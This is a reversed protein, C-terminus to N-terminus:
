SGADERVKRRAIERIAPHLDLSEAVLRIDQALLSHILKIGLETPTYPNFILAKKVRYRSIWKRSAMVERQVAAAAPRRSCLKLVDPETLAPNQLLARMVRPDTDSLMRSLQAGRAQKALAIRVGPPQDEQQEEEGDALRSPEPRSLIGALEEYGRDQAATYIDSMAPNGLRETLLPVSLADLLLLYEGKERSAARVIEQLLGAADGPSLERVKEALLRSRMGSEPVAALASALQQLTTKESAM